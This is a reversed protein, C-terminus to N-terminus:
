RLGGPPRPISGLGPRGPGTEDNYGAVATLIEDVFPESLRCRVSRGGEPVEMTRGESTLVVRGDSARLMVSMRIRAVNALANGESDGECSVRGAATAGDWVEEVMFDGSRVQGDLMREVLPIQYQAFVVEARQELALRDAPIGGRSQGLSVCGALALLALGPLLPRLPATPVSRRLDPGPEGPM